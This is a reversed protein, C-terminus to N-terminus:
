TKIYAHQREKGLLETMAKALLLFKKNLVLLWQARTGMSCSYGNLVLLWQARTVMSGSYGNLVHLWEFLLLQMTLYKYLSANYGHM